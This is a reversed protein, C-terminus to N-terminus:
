SDLVLQPDFIIANRGIFKLAEAQFLNSNKALDSVNDLMLVFGNNWLSYQLIMEVNFYKCIFINVYSYILSFKM